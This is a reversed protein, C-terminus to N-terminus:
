TVRIKQRNRKNNKKILWLGLRYSEHGKNLFNFTIIIQM